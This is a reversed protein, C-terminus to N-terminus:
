PLRDLDRLIAYRVTFVKTGEPMPDGTDLNVIPAGELCEAHCTGLDVDMACLDDDEFAADCVPCTYPEEDEANILAILADKGVAGVLLANPATEDSSMM